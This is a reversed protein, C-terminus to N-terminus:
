RHNLHSTIACVASFGLEFGPLKGIGIANTDIIGLISSRDSGKCNHLSYFISRSSDCLLDVVEKSIDKRSVGVPTVHPHIILPRESIILDGPSLNTAAFTGTGKGEVTEFYFRFPLPTPIIPAPFRDRPDSGEHGALTKGDDSARSLRRALHL